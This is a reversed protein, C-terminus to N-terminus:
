QPDSGVSKYLLTEAPHYGLERYLAEARHNGVLVAIKVTQIGHARAHEEVAHVLRRGIGRGRHNEAVSLSVLELTGLTDFTDDPEPSPVVLTYGTASGDEARAVYYAADEDLLAEEYLARRRQWSLDADAVLPGWVATALHTAHMGLYLPRLEELGDVATLPGVITITVPRSQGALGYPLL